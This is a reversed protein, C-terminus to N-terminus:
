VTYFCNKYLHTKLHKKFTAESNCYSIETPLGNWIKPAAYSFSRRAFDTSLSPLNLLPLAASRTHRTAVRLTLALIYSTWRQHVVGRASQEDASGSGAETRGVEVAAARHGSRLLVRLTTQRSINAIQGCALAVRQRAIAFTTDPPSSAVGDGGFDVDAASM